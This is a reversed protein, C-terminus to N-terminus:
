LPKLAQSTSLKHLDTEIGTLFMSESIDDCGIYVKKTMLGDESQNLHISSVRTQHNVFASGSFEEPNPQQLLVLLELLLVEPVQLAIDTDVYIM